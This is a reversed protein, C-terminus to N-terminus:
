PPCKVKKNNEQKFFDDLYTEVCHLSGPMSLFDLLEKDLASNPAMSFVTRLNDIKKEKNTLPDRLVTCDNTKIKDLNRFIHWFCFFSGAKNPVISFMFDIKQYGGLEKLLKHKLNYLFEIFEKKTPNDVMFKLFFADPINGIQIIDITAGLQKSLQAKNNQNYLIYNELSCEIIQSHQTAPVTGAMRPNHWLTFQCEEALHYTEPLKPNLFYFERILKEFDDIEINPLHANSDRIVNMNYLLTNHWRLGEYVGSSTVGLFHNNGYCMENPRIRSNEETNPLRNECETQRKWTFVLYRQPSLNELLSRKIMMLRKNWLGTYQVLKHKEKSNEFFSDPKSQLHTSFRKYVDLLDSYNSSSNQPETILEHIHQKTSEHLQGFDKIGKYKKITSLFITIAKKLQISILIKKGIAYPLIVPPVMDDIPSRGTFSLGDQNFFVKSTKENIKKSLELRKPIDIIFRNKEDMGIFIEEFSYATVQAIDMIKRFFCLTVSINGKQVGYWIETLAFNVNQIQLLIAQSPLRNVLSFKLNTKTQVEEIIDHLLNTFNQWLQKKFLNQLKYENSVALGQQLITEANFTQKFTLLQQHIDDIHKMNIKKQGLLFSLMAYFFMCTSSSVIINIM